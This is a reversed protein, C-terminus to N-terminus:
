RSTRAGGRARLLLVLSVVALTGDSLAFLLFAPPSGRLLHDAVFLVAGMSKALVGALWVYGRRVAQDRAAWVYGVGLTLTFVGNLQANVVPQPAPAGFARAVALPALLMGLALAFDYAASLWCLARLARDAPPANTSGDSM